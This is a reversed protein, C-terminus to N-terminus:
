VREKETTITNLRAIDKRVRRLESTKALQRTAKQFRLNFLERYTEELRKKLDEPSLARIEAPKM